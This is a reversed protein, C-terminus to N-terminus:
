MVAAPGRKSDSKAMPQPRVSVVVGILAPDNEVYVYPSDQEGPFRHFLIEEIPMPQPPLIGALKESLTKAAEKTSAPADSSVFVYVGPLERCTRWSPDQGVPKWRAGILIDEIKGWTDSEEVGDRTSVNFVGCVEANFQQGSFQLLADHLLSENKELLISRPEEAELESNLEKLRLGLADAQASAADGKKQAAGAKDKAKGADTDAQTASAQADSAANKAVSASTGADRLLQENITAINGDDANVWGDSWFEGAVGVAVLLWGILGLFTIWAPDHKSTKRKKCRQILEWLKYVIEPGELIVGVAVFITMALLWAFDHNRHAVLADRSSELAKIADLSLVAPQFTSLFVTITWKNLLIMHTSVITNM